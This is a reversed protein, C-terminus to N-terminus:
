KKQELVVAILNPDEVRGGWVWGSAPQLAGDRLTGLQDPHLPCFRFAPEEQGVETPFCWRPSNLDFSRDFFGHATCNYFSGIFGAWNPHVFKRTQVRGCWGKGINLPHPHPLSVSM